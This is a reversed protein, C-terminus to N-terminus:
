DPFAMVEVLHRGSNASNGTQTIRLYNLMYRYRAWSVRRVPSPVLPLQEPLNLQSGCWSVHCHCVEKLYANLGMALAVGSNGRIVIRGDRSEIEFVDRGRVPPITEFHFM